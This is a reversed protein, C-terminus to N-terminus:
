DDDSSCKIINMQLLNIGLEKRNGPKAFTNVYILM